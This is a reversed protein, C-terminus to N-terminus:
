LQSRFNTELCSEPPMRFSIQHSLIHSVERYKYVDYIENKEINPLQASVYFVFITMFPTGPPGWPGSNPMYRVVMDGFM